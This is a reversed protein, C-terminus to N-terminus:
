LEEVRGLETDVRRDRSSLTVRPQFTQDVTSRVETGTYETTPECVWEVSPEPPLDWKYLRKVGDHPPRSVHAM